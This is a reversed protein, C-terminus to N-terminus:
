SSSNTKSIKCVLADLALARKRGVSKVVYKIEKITLTDGSKINEAGRCTFNFDIGFAGNGQAVEQMSIPKLYGPTNSITEDGTHGNADRTKRTVTAIDTFFSYM